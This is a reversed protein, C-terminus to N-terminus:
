TRSPWKLAESSFSSSAVLSIRSTLMPKLRIASRRALISCSRAKISAPIECSKRVGKARKRSSVSNLTASGSVRSRIAASM